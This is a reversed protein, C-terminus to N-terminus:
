NLHLILGSRWMHGNLHVDYTEGEDVPYHVQGFDDYIYESRSTLWDNWAVEWGAGISGGTVTQGVTGFSISGPRFNFDGFALGGAVFVLVNDWATWGLRGRLHGIEPLDYSNPTLQRPQVSEGTGRITSAGIDGEVGLVLRGTRMNAGLLVGGGFGDTSAGDELVTGGEEVHTRGFFTMGLAGAYFGNWHLRRAEGAGAPMALFATLSACAVLTAVATTRAM